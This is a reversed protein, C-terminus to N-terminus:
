IVRALSVNVQRLLIGMLWMLPVVGQDVMILLCLTV